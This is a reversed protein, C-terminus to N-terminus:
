LITGNQWKELLLFGVYPNQLSNLKCCKVLNKVVILFWFFSWFLRSVLCMWFSNKITFIFFYLAFLYFHM